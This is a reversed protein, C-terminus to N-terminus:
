FEEIPTVAESGFVSENERYWTKSNTIRKGTGTRADLFSAMQKFNNKEVAMREGTRTNVVFEGQENWVCAIGDLRRPFNGHELGRAIEEYEM